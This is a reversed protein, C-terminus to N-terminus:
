EIFVVCFTSQSSVILTNEDCSKGMAKGPTNPSTIDTQVLLSTGLYQMQRNECVSFRKAVPGVILIINDVKDVM